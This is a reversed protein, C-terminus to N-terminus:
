RDTGKTLAGQAPILSPPILEMIKDQHIIRNEGDEVWQDIAYVRWEGPSVLRRYKDPIRGGMTGPITKELRPGFAQEVKLLLESNEKDLQKSKGEPDHLYLGAVAAGAAAASGYMAAYAGKNEQRAQAAIVGVGGAIAMDRLIKQTQTTACGSLSICLLLALQKSANM